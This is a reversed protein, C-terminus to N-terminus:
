LPNEYTASPWVCKFRECVAEMEDSYTFGDRKASRQFYADHEAKWYVLSRDGEGEDWAFVADVDRVRCIDIQTTQIICRPIKQGDTIIWHDGLKPLGGESFQRRLECTAQKQGKLVLALLEDAMAPDDGFWDSEPGAGSVGSAACYSAWLAEAETM